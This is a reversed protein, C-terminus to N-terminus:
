WFSEDSSDRWDRQDNEEMADSLKILLDDTPRDKVM